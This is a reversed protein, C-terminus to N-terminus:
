VFSFYWLLFTIMLWFRCLSISCLHGSPMWSEPSLEAPLAAPLSRTKLQGPCQFFHSHSLPLSRWPCALPPLSPFSRSFCFSPLASSLRTRCDAASTRRVLWQQRCLYCTSDSSCQQLWTLCVRAAGLVPCCWMLCRSFYRLSISYLLVRPRASYPDAALLLAVPSVLPNFFSLHPRKRDAQLCCSSSIWSESPQPDWARIIEWPILAGELLFSPPFM